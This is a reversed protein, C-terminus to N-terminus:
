LCNFSIHYIKNKEKEAQDPGFSNVKTMKCQRWPWQAEDRPTSGLSFTVEALKQIMKDFTNKGQPGKAFYFLVPTWEWFPRTSKQLIRGRLPVLRYQDLSYFDAALILDAARHVPIRRWGCSRLGIVCIGALGPNAEATRNLCLSM